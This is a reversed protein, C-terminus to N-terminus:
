HRILAATYIGLERAGETSSEPTPMRVPKKLRGLSNVELQGHHYNGISMRQEGTVTRTESGVGRSSNM